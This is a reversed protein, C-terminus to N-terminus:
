RARRGGKTATSPGSCAPIRMSMAEIPETCNREIWDDLDNGEFRLLHGVKVFRIRREAVLRRVYRPTVGLREAVEEVGLLRQKSIAKVYVETSHLEHESVWM